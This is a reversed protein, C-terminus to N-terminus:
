EGSRHCATCSQDLPRYRIMIRDEPGDETSHCEGCPVRAHAGELSFRSTEHDFAPIRYSSTEHCNRCDMEQFQGGHPDDSEHCAFCSGGWDAEDLLAHDFRDMLFDYTEHCLDCGPPRFAEEHPDDSRHCVTCSGPDDFRFVLRRDKETGTEHCASCPTVAHSGSLEFRLEMRHRARDYDPPVWSDNGHCADCAREEFIGEHSDQHCSSCTEHEPPPYSHGVTSSTFRLRIRTPAGSAPSHCVRCDRQAHAGVLSFQTTEHDFNSEMWSRDVRSWGTPAHCAGCRGAM